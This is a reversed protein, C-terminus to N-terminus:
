GFIVKRLETVVVILTQGETYTGVRFRVDVKSNDEVSSPVTALIFYILVLIFYGM